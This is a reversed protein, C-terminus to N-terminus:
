GAIRHPLFIAPFLIEARVTDTVLRGFLDHPRGVLAIRILLARTASPRATSPSADWSILSAPHLGCPRGDRALNRMRAPPAPPYVLGTATPVHGM